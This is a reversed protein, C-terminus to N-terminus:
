QNPTCFKLALTTVFKKSYDGCYLCTEDKHSYCYHHTIFHRLKDLIFKKEKETLALCTRGETYTKDKKM